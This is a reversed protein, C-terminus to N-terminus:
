SKKGKRTIQYIMRYVNGEKKSFALQSIRMEKFETKTMTVLETGVRVTIRDMGEPLALYKKSLVAEVVNRAATVNITKVNKRLADVVEKVDSYPVNRGAITQRAASNAEAAQYAALLEDVVGEVPVTTEPSVNEVPAVDKPTQTQSTKKSMSNRGEPIGESM